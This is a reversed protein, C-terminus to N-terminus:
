LWFVYCSFSQDQISGLIATWTTSFLDSMSAAIWAESAVTQVLQVKGLYATIRICPLPRCLEILVFLVFGSALLPHAFSSDM